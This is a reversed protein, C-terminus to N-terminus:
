DKELVKCKILVKKIVRKMKHAVTNNKSKVNNKVLKEFDETDLKEFFKERHPSFKVPRAMEGIIEAPIAACLPRFM